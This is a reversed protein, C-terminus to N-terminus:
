TARWFEGSEPYYSLLARLADRQIQPQAAITAATGAASDPRRKDSGAQCQAQTKNPPSTAETAHHKGVSYAAGEGPRHGNRFM